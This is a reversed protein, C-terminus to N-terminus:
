GAAGLKPFIREARGFGNSSRSALPTTFTVTTGEGVQSSIGVQGGHAEVLQKVIALGLGAGGTSRTRSRDARYFREFVLAWCGAGTDRVSVQVLSDITKARVEVLGGPPTGTIANNLLNGLVQSIRGADADIYPLNPPIDVRISVGKALAKPEALYVSKEVLSYPSRSSVLPQSAQGTCGSISWGTSCSAEEDSAVL